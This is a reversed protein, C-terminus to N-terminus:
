CDGHGLKHEIRYTNKLVEGICIPYLLGSEYQDLGEPYSMVQEVDCLDPTDSDETDDQLSITAASSMLTM